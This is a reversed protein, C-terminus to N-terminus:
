KKNFYSIKFIFHYIRNSGQGKSTNSMRHFDSLCGIQFRYADSKFGISM